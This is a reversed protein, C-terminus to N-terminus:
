RSFRHPEKQKGGSDIQSSFASMNSPCFVLEKEEPAALPFLARCIKQKSYQFSLLVSCFTSYPERLARILFDSANEKMLIM